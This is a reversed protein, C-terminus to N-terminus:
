AAAQTDASGAGSFQFIVDAGDLSHGVRRWCGCRGGHTALWDPLGAM